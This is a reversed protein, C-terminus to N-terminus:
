LGSKRLAANRLHEPVGKRSVRYYRDGRHRGPAKAPQLDFEPEANGGRRVPPPVNDDAVPADRDPSKAQRKRQSMACSLGQQDETRVVSMRGTGEDPAGGPMRQRDRGARDRQQPIRTGDFQDVPQPRHSRRRCQSPATVDCGSEFMAEGETPDATIKTLELEPGNDQRRLSGSALNATPPNDRYSAPRLQVPRHRHRMTFRRMPTAPLVRTWPATEPVDELVM